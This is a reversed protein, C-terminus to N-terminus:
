CGRKLYERKLNREARRIFKKAHIDIVKVCGHKDLPLGLDHFFTNGNLLMGKGSITMLVIWVGKDSKAELTYFDRTQKLRLKINTM